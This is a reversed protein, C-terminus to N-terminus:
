GEVIEGPFETDGSDLQALTALLESHAEHAPDTLVAVPLIFKGSQREIPNLASMPDTSSPGRVQDAEVAKLIIFLGIV